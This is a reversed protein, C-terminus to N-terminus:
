RPEDTGAAAGAAAFPGLQKNIVMATNPNLPYNEPTDSGVMGRNFQGPFWGPEVYEEFQHVTLAAFNAAALTRPRVGKGSTLATAGGVAMGALVGVCPWQKRYFDIFRGM